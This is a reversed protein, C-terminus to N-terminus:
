YQFLEKYPNRTSVLNKLIPSCSCIQSNDFNQKKYQYYLIELSLFNMKKLISRSLRQQTDMYYKKHIERLIWNDLSRLQQIDTITLFFSLWNRGIEYKGCESCIRQKMENGLYKYDLRLKLIKLSNIDKLKTKNLLNKIRMKFKKINQAKIRIGTESISFGVFNIFNGKQTLDVLKTKTPDTHLDLGVSSLFFSTKEKIEDLRSNNETLIIFDDAYRIYRLPIEKGLEKVVWEDFQHLYINALLGSLIGGQPIGAARKERIPKEKWFKYTANKYTLWNVRDVHIFRYLLQYIISSDKLFTRIAVALREHPITDFFKKIDGDLAFCFGNSIHTYIKRAALPASLNRRYGYSVNPLSKFKTEAYPYLFDYLVKQVLVDRISAISLIREKGLKIAKYPSTVQHDKSKIIERFPYFYYNGNHLRKVLAEVHHHIKNEFISETVGDAGMQINVVPTDKFTDTKIAKYLKFEEIFREVTCEKLFAEDFESM